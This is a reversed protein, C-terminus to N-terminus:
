TIRKKKKKKRKNRSEDVQEKRTMMMTMMMERRLTRALSQGTWTTTKEWKGTWGKGMQGVEKMLEVGVWTKVQKRKPFSKTLKLLIPDQMTAMRLPERSVTMQVKTTRSAWGKQTMTKGKLETLTMTTPLQPPARARTGSNPDEKPKPHKAPAVGM